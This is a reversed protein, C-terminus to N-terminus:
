EYTILYVNDVWPDDREYDLSPYRPNLIRKSILSDLAYMKLFRCCEKWPLINVFVNKKKIWAVDVLITPPIQHNKVSMM